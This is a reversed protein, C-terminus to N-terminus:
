RGRLNNVMGWMEDAAKITRSGFEFARQALIMETMEKGADVNSGEVFGQLINSDSIVPNVGEKAMYLNDGVSLFADDGIANYVNVRGVERLGEGTTLDKTKVYLSGDEKIVFNDKTFKIPEDSEYDEEYLEVSLKNGNKDIIDGNTDVNFSGSRIYRYENQPNLVRFYGEGDIALDTKANTQLLNGQKTDRIWNSTRVGTGNTLNKNEGGNVPYGRRDLTESMLDKFTVDMRKYGETNVNSLNNSISDLKDQQATMASRGNWLIRLM